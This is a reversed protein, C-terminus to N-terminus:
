DAPTVPPGAPAPTSVPGLYSLYLKRQSLAFLLRHERIFNAGLIVQFQDRAWDSFGFQHLDAAAPGWLDQVLVPLNSIREAGIDIAPLTTTRAAVSHTGIGGVQSTKTSAQLGISNALAADVVSWPSGSDILARVTKGGVIVPIVQRWDSPGLPHMEVTVADADWYSLRAEDCDRPSFFTLRGDAPSFEVDRQFLFNAAVLLDFDPQDGSQWAVDLTVRHWTVPGLDLERVVTRYVESEGGAGVTTDDVHSLSLKWREAAGRALTLLQAGTDVILRAPLGNIAGQMRLREDVWQAPITGERVYRCTHPPEEARAAGVLALAWAACQVTLSRSRM